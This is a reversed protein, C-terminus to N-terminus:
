ANLSYTQDKYEEVLEDFFAKKLTGRETELFLSYEAGYRKTLRANKYLKSDEDMFVRKFNCINKGDFLLAQGNEIYIANADSEKEVKQKPYNNQVGWYSVSYMQKKWLVDCDPIKKKLDKDWYFQSKRDVYIKGSFKVQEKRIFLMVQEDTVYFVSNDDHNTGYGYSYKSGYYSGFDYNDDFSYTYAPRTYTTSIPKEEVYEFKETKTGIMKTAREIIDNMENINVYEYWCHPNYYGCSINVCEIKFAPAIYTIDSCSGNAKEFGFKKIHEEFDENYSKYFVYDNGGKRDFEVCYNIEGLDIGSKCFKKSGVCGIEEDEFFAVSCDHTKLIELIMIIGCRDDGGIGELSMIVSGDKSYLINQPSQKHVTDMHAVLLVPYTGKYYLYGDGEVIEKNAVTFANKLSDKLQTQTACFIKEMLDKKM